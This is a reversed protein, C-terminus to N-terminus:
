KAMTTFASKASSVNEPGSTSVGVASTIPNIVRVVKAMVTAPVYLVDGPHMDINKTLDGGYLLSYVDVEQIKAKGAKDPTVIRCRRMAASLTPLGSQVLAERVPISESRMYYKGPRGVEGLVYIVKSKYDMITVTVEPNILYTSLTTKLKEELQKKTLGNADVDGALKFQIKGELNIPFIGSFEPHRQVTIDVVDEPGLTYRMPDTYTTDDAKVLIPVQKPISEIATATLQEQTSEAAATTIAQAPATPAIAAQIPVVPASVAQAPETTTTIGSNANAPSSEIIKPSEKEAWCVGCLLFIAFIM